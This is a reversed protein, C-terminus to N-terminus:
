FPLWAYYLEWEEPTMRDEALGLLSQFHPLANSELIFAESKKDEISEMTRVISDVESYLSLLSQFKHKLEKSIEM